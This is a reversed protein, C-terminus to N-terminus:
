PEVLAGLLSKLAALFQRDQICVAALLHCPRFSEFGRGETKSNGALMRGADVATTPSSLGDVSTSQLRGAQSYM